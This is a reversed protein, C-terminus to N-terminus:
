RLERRAPIGPLASWHTINEKPTGGNGWWWDVFSTGGQWSRVEVRRKIDVDGGCRVVLVAVDMPPLLHECSIWDVTATLAVGYMKRIRIEIKEEGDPVIVCSEHVKRGNFHAVNDNVIIGAKQLIDMLTVSKGDEDSRGSRVYFTTTVEPHDVPLGVARSWQFMAQLTLAEMQAKTEPTSILRGGEATRYNSKKSPCHGHLTLTVDVPGDFTIPKSKRSGGSPPRPVLSSNGSVNRQLEEFQAETINMGSM